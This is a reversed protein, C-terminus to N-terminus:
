PGELRLVVELIWRCTISSGICLTKELFAVMLGFAFWNLCGIANKTFRQSSIAQSRAREPVSAAVVRVAILLGLTDVLIFRQRGKIKKGGDYGVAQHVIV